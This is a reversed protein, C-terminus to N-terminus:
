FTQIPVMPRLTKGEADAKSAPGSAEGLADGEEEKASGPIPTKDGYRFIQGPGLSKAIALAQQTERLVVLPSRGRSQSVGFSATVAATRLGLDFPKQFILKRLRQALSLTADRGCGPLAILFEDDAMRGILDYSRLYRQFREVTQQLIRDGAEFGLSTTLETFNDLQIYLFGLPNQMRQVRDTERFLNSLITERNLVGTIKDYQDYFRSREISHNLDAQLSCMREATHMRVHLDQEQLPLAILDDAGADVAMQVLERDAVDTVLMTWMHKRKESQRLRHLVEIASIEKLNANLVIIEAAQAEGLKSLVEVGTQVSIVSYNWSKLLECLRSASEPESDGLLVRTGNQYAATM